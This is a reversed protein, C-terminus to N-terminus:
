RALIMQSRSIGMIENRAVPSVGSWSRHDEQRQRHLERKRSHGEGELRVAPKQEQSIGDQALQGLIACFLGNVRYGKM